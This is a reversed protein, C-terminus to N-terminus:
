SGTKAAVEDRRVSEGARSSMCVNTKEAVNDLSRWCFRLRRFRNGVDFFRGV